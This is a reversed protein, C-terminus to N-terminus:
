FYQRNWQPWYEPKVDTYLVSANADGEYSLHGVLLCFPEVLRPQAVVVVHSTKALVFHTCVRVVPLTRFPNSEEDEELVGLLLCKLLYVLPIRIILIALYEHSLPPHAKPRMRRKWKGILVRQTSKKENSHFLREYVNNVGM